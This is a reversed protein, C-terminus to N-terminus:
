KWDVIEQELILDVGFQKKVETKVLEILSKIDNGTANGINVIFNAHKDSVMAGGIAKGKLGAAEILRGAYDGPPNRFVSGASPKDLPQSLARRKCRDNVLELSEEKNGEKLLFTGELVILGQEKINTHRYEYKIDDKKLEIVKLDKTLVKISILNDFMESNYAGANGVISGGLSGPINISWELGTLNFCITTRALKGLMVGAGSTVKEDDINIYDLGDLKIIVGDFYDDLIVNSGGGLIFYKINNKQLYAILKILAEVSKITILYKAESPIKYTNIKNLSANEVIEMDKTNM